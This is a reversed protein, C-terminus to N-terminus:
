GKPPGRLAAQRLAVALGARPPAVALACYYAQRRPTPVVVRAAAAYAADYFQETHCHTHQPSALAKGQRRATTAVEITHRHAHLTLVWAEPLLTRGLCLLLLTALYPRLVPRM